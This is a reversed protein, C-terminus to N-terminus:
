DAATVTLRREMEQWLRVWAPGKLDSVSEPIRRALSEARAGEETAWGRALDRAVKTLRRSTSLDKFIEQFSLADQRTGLLDQLGQLQKIPARAVPEYAGGVFELTYRLNKLRKRLTHIRVSTPNTIAADASKMATAYAGRVM